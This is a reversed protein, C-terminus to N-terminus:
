TEIVCAWPLRSAPQLKRLASLLFPLSSVPLSYCLALRSEHFRLESDSGEVIFAAIQLAERLCESFVCKRWRLQLTLVSTACFRQQLDLYSSVSHALQGILSPRWMGSLSRSFFVVLFVYLCISLCISPHVSSPHLSLRLPSSVLLCGSLDVM